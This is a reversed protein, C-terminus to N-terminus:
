ELAFSQAPTSDTFSVELIELTENWKYKSVPAIFEKTLQEISQDYVRFLYLNGAPADQFAAYGKSPSISYNNFRGLEKNDYYLYRVDTVGEQGRLERFSSGLDIERTNILEAAYATISTFLLILFYAYQKMTIGEM